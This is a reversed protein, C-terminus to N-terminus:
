KFLKGRKELHIRKETKVPKIGLIDLLFTFIPVAVILGWIGLFHEGVLLCVFTYFIPLETKSAMLKPNLVYSELTHIILIMIIIYIVDKIGGVTYGVIGLPILSIIVGAVPILSLIFVIIGLAFIQPIKLILLGIITIATNCIAILFQAELVVGFTNVFKKGFYAIDEFFWKLYGTKVFASSFTTLEKLNIAYFFSLLLSMIISVTLTGFGTLAHFIIGMGRKAQTALEANSIYRHVSKMLWDWDNDRYFKIVSHVMKETQPVIIPIYVNVMLYILGILIIYAGIVVIQSPLKPIHKRFFKILHVILYTFIFTLLITNMMSRALYLIFILLALVVVRRLPINTKFNQWAKQM